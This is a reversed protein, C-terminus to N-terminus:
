PCCNDVAIIATDGKIYFLRDYIGELGWREGRAPITPDGAIKAIEKLCVGIEGTSPKLIIQTTIGSFLMLMIIDKGSDIMNAGTSPHFLSLLSGLTKGSVRGVLEGKLMALAGIAPKCAEESLRKSLKLWELLERDSLERIATNRHQSGRSDTAVKDPTTMDERIPSSMIMRLWRKYM